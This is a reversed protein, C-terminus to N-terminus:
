LLFASHPLRLYPKPSGHHERCQLNQETSATEIRGIMDIHIYLIGFIREHLM